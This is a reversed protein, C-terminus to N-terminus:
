QVRRSQARKHMEEIHYVERLDEEFIHLIVDNYDMLIWGGDTEGEVGLPYIGKEKVALHVKDHIGKAHASSTASCLVIYDSLSSEGVLDIEVIDLAKSDELTSTILKLLDQAQM